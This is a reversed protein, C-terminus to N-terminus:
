AVVPKAERIGCQIPRLLVAAVAHLPVVRNVDNSRARLGARGSGEFWAHEVHRRVRSCRSRSNACGPRHARFRGAGSKVASLSRSRDTAGVREPPAVIAIAVEFSRDREMALDFPVPNECRHLSTGWRDLQRLRRLGSAPADRRPRQRRRVLRFNERGTASLTVM